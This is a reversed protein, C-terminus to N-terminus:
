ETSSKEDKANSIAGSIKASTIPAVNCSIFTVNGGDIPQRNELQRIENPTMIGAEISIKYYEARSKLDASYLSMLDFSIRKRLQVSKSGFLLKCAFEAEIQAILPRLTQNLFTIQSNESAKYNASGNEVFVMDPHVGFFRCISYPSFKRNELLQADAPSISLPTFQVAGPLRMVAKDMQIESELREAVEDVYQDQVAGFGKMPDGGSVFGKLRNGTRFGDLTQEDANASIALTRGAYHLTSVGIYGGDLSKNKIHIIEWAEYISTHKTLYDYVSYTNSYVDYSVADSGLLYLAEYEGREDRIPLIYANGRLLLSIVANQMLVYFSQWPNAQRSFLYNLTDNEDYEFVEGRRRMLRLPMAAITGSLIDVCRYVTDLKFAQEPSSVSETFSERWSFQPNSEGKKKAEQKSRKSVKSKIWETVSM